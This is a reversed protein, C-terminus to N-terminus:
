RAEEPYLRAVEGKAEAVEDEAPKALGPVADASLWRDIVCWFWEEGRDVTTGNRGTNLNLAVTEGDPAYLVLELKTAPCPLADHSCTAVIQEGQEETPADRAVAVVDLDSVGPVYEGRAWSGIAAAAQLPLAAEIRTFLEALYDRENV